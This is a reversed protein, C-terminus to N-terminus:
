LRSRGHPQLSFFELEIKPRDDVFYVELTLSDHYSKRISCCRAYVRRVDRQFTWENSEVQRLGELIVTCSDCPGEYASRVIEEPTFDFALRADGEDKKELNHCLGCFAM